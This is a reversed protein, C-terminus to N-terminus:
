IVIISGCSYNGTDITSMNMTITIGHTKLDSLSIKRNISVIGGGQEQTSCGSVVFNNDDGKVLSIIAATSYYSSYSFLSVNGAKIEMGNRNRGINENNTSIGIYSFNNLDRLVCYYSETTAYNTLFTFTKQVKNGDVYGKTAPESNSTPTPLNTKEFYKM